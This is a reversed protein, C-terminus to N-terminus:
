LQRLSIQGVAKALKLEDRIATSFAGGETLKVIFLPQHLQHDHARFAVRSGKQVDFSAAESELYARLVELETAQTKRATDLLVNVAAYAAWTPSQMLTGTRAMFNENLAQAEPTRSTVEWLAARYGAGVHPASQLSRTYAQRTQTLQDPFGTILAELGAFEYQSLFFDHDEPRLLLLIAEPKVKRIQEIVDRYSAYADVGLGVATSGVLSARDNDEILKSATRYRMKNKPSSSYVCFWHHRNLSAFWTVLAQLYASSSAEVHFTHAYKSSKQVTDDSTGINFFLVKAEEAVQSLVHTQEVSFGGILANVEETAVLRQAARYTAEVTPGSSMFIKPIFGTDNGLLGEAFLAGAQASSGLIDAEAANGTPIPFVTGIRFLQSRSSQAFGRVAFTPLTLALAGM